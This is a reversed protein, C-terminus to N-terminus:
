GVRYNLCEIILKQTASTEYGRTIIYIAKYFNTHDTQVIGDKPVRQFVFSSPDGDYELKEEETFIVNFEVGAGCDNIIQLSLPFMVETLTEGSPSTQTKLIRIDFEKDTKANIDTSDIEFRKNKM